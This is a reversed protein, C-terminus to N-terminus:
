FRSTLASVYPSMPNVKWTRVKGETTRGKEKAVNRSLSKRTGFAESEELVSRMKKVIIIQKHDM